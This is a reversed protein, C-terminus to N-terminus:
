NWPRNEDMIINSIHNVFVNFKKSTQSYIKYNIHIKKVIVEFIWLLKLIKAFNMFIKCSM